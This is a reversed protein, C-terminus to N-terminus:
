TAPVTSLPDREFAFFSEQLPSTDGLELQYPLKSLDLGSPDAESMGDGSMGDESM